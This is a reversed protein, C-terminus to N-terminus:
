GTFLLCLPYLAPWCSSTFLFIDYILENTTAWYLLFAQHQNTEPLESSQNVCALNVDMYQVSLLM